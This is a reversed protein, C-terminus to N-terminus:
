MVAATHWLMSPDHYYKDMKAKMEWKGFPDKTTYLYSYNGSGWFVYYVGEHYRISSAWQGKGYIAGGELNNAPSEDITDYLYSVIEWNVLDKSHMIPAGPMMHMTTSIMFYDEGVRIVDVDPVDSYVVPNVFTQPAKSGQCSVLVAMVCFLVMKARLCGSGSVAM